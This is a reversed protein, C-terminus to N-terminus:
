TLPSIAATTPAPALLPLTTKLEAEITGFVEARTHQVPLSVDTFDLTVPVNGYLDMAKYYCYDRLAKLEAIMNPKKDFEAPSVGIQYIVQNCAAITNFCFQWSSNVPDMTPVFAFKNMQVWLGNNDLFTGQTRVPCCAEDTALVESGLMGWLSTGQYQMQGYANGMALICERETQYFQSADLSLYLQENLKTCSSSALFCSMVVLLYKFNKM